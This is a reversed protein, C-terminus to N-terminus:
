PLFPLSINFFKLWFLSYVAFFILGGVILIVPSVAPKGGGVHGGAVFATTSGAPKTSAVPAPVMPPPTPSSIPPTPTPIPMPPTPISAQPTPASQVSSPPIPMPNSPTATPLSTSMVRNYAEQLKPDLTPLNKPDM